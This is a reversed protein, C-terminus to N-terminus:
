ASCSATGANWSPCLPKQARPLVTASSPIALASSSIPTPFITIEPLVLVPMSLQALWAKAQEFERRRARLTLDGAIVAVDPNQAEITERLKSALGEPVSGFHLDAALAIKM